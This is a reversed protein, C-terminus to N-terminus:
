SKLFDEVEKFTTCVIEMGNAFVVRFYKYPNTMTKGFEISEKVFTIDSSNTSNDVKQETVYGKDVSDGLTNKIISISNGQKWQGVITLQAKQEILLYNVNSQHTRSWCYTIKTQIDMNM